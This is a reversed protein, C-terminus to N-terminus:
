NYNQCNVYIYGQSIKAFIGPESSHGCPVWVGTDMDTREVQYYEIPIGGDDKPKKWKLKCGEKHVDLVQLPGEPASPKDSVTVNVTVSDCGSDNTAIITYQGSHDRKIPRIVLKTNYESNDISINTTGRLPLSDFKWEIKPSPEGIVNVDYKLM